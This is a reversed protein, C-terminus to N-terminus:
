GAKQGDPHMEAQIYELNGKLRLDDPEFDLAKKAQELALDKMGLHWASISALDHAWYGWVAPDCTYVLQKDVIQLARM